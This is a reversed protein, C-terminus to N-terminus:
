TPLAMAHIFLLLVLLLLVVVLSLLLLAVYMTYYHMIICVDIIMSFRFVYYRLLFWLVLLICAAIVLCVTSLVYCVYTVHARFLPYLGHPASQPVMAAGNYRWFSTDLKMWIENSESKSDTELAPGWPM